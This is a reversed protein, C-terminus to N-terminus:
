LRLSVSVKFRLILMGGVLAVASTDLGGNFDAGTKTPMAPTMDPSVPSASSEPRLVPCDSECNASFQSFVSNGATPSLARSAPSSSFSSYRLVSAASYVSIGPSGLASVTTSSMKLPPSPQPWRPSSGIKSLRRAAVVSSWPDSLSLSIRDICRKFRSHASM